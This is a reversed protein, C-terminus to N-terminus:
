IETFITVIIFFTVKVSSYNLHLKKVRARGILQHGLNEQKVNRAGQM